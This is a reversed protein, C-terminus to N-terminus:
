INNFLFNNSIETVLMDRDRINKFMNIFCKLCIHKNLWMLARLLVWRGCTNVGPRIEQLGYNNSIINNFKSNAVLWSLHPYYTDFYRFNEPIFRLQTDMDIGYPDFFEMTNKNIKIIMCWHGSRDKTEYLIICPVINKSKIPDENLPHFLKNINDVDALQKYLVINCKGDLVKFIDNSSIKINM